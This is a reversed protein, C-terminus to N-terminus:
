IHRKFTLSQDFWVGLWRLTCQIAPSRSVRNQSAAPPQVPEITLTTSVKIDLNDQNKKRSFHQTETKDAAFFIKNEEGWALVDRIDQAIDEANQQLNGRTNIRTLLVDDAYGFRLQPQQQLLEALYLIYLIPSWPSGQPTSCKVPLMRTYEGDLRAKISRDNLFSQIMKMTQIGWGQARLRQLLRRALIADFAGQVDMAVVTAVHGM